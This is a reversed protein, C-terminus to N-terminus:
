IKNTTLCVPRRGTKMVISICAPSDLSTPLKTIDCYPQPYGWDPKRYYQCDRCKLQDM